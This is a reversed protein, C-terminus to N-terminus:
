RRYARGRPLIRMVRIEHEAESREFRIRWDGVRLRWEGSSLKRVDGTEPGLEVLRRIADLM